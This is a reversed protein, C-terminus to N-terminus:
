NPFDTTYCSLRRMKNKTLLPWKWHFSNAELTSIITKDNLFDTCVDMRPNLYLDRATVNNWKWYNVWFWIYGDRETTLVIPAARETKIPNVVNMALMKELKMLEIDRRRRDLEIYHLIHLIHQTSVAIRWSLSMNRRADGGWRAM